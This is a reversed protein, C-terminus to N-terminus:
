SQNEEHEKRKGQTTYDFLWRIMKEGKKRESM